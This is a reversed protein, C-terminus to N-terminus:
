RAAGTELLAEIIRASDGTIGIGRGALEGPIRADDFNLCAYTANPNDNAGHWFNYKIIGPTNWGVGIELYLLRDKRHAERFALYREAAARFSARHAIVIGISMLDGDWNTETDIVAIYGADGQAECRKVSSKM